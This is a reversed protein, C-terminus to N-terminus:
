IISYIIDNVTTPTVGVGGRSEVVNYEVNEYSFPGVYMAVHDIHGDQGPETYASNKILTLFYYIM